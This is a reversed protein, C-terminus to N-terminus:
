LDILMWTSKLLLLSSSEVFFILRFASFAIFFSTSVRVVWWCSRLQIVPNKLHQKNDFWLEPSLWTTNSSRSTQCESQPFSPLPAPSRNQSQRPYPSSSSSVATKQQLIDNCWYQISLDKTSSVTINSSWSRERRRVSVSSSSTFAQPPLVAWLHSSTKLVGKM